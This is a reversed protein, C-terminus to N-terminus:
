EKELLRERLTKKEARRKLLRRQRRLLAQAGEIQGEMIRLDRFLPENEVDLERLTLLVASAFNTTLFFRYGFRVFRTRFERQPPILAASWHTVEIYLLRTPVFVAWIGREYGTEKHVLAYPSALQEYRMNGHVLHIPHEEPLLSAALRVYHFYERLDDFHPHRRIM